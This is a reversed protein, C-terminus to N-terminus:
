EQNSNLYGIQALIYEHKNKCTFRKFPQLQKRIPDQIQPRQNQSSRKHIRECFM